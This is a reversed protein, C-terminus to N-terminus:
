GKKERYPPLLLGRRSYQRQALGEQWCVSPGLRRIVGIAILDLYSITLLTTFINSSTFFWKPSLPGPMKFTYIPSYVLLNPGFLHLSFHISFPTSHDRFSRCDLLPIAPLSHPLCDFPECRPKFRCFFLELSPLMFGKSTSELSPNLQARATSLRRSGASVHHVRM